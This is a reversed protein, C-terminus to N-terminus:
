PLYVTVGVTTKTANTLIRTPGVPKIYGVLAAPIILGDTPAGVQDGYQVYITGAAAAEVGIFCDGAQACIDQVGIKFTGGTGGQAPISISKITDVSANFILTDNGNANAPTISETLEAGGRYYTMVIPSVSFQGADNSRTITIVRPLLTLKGNATSTAVGDFSAATLVVPNTSTAFSTKIGDDDVLAGSAFTVSRGAIRYPYNM